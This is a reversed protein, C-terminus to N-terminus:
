ARRWLKGMQQFTAVVDAGNLFEQAVGVGGGGHDIGMHKIAANMPTILGRSLM